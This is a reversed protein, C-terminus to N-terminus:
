RMEKYVPEGQISGQHFDDITMCDHLEACTQCLYRFWSPACVYLGAAPEGDLECISQSKEQAEEIFGKITRDEVHSDIQLKGYQQRIATITVDEAKTKSLLHWRIQTALDHLLGFWGDKCAFGEQLFERKFLEPFDEFLRESNQYKM